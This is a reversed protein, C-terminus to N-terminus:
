AFIKLFSGIHFSTDNGETYWASDPDETGGTVEKPQMIPWNHVVEHALLDNLYDEKDIVTSDHYELLFSWLAASGGYSPSTSRRVFIRYSPGLDDFFASMQSYLQEVLTAIKTANFIAPEGFWYMGFNSAPTTHNRLPGVALFTNSIDNVTGRKLVPSGEGWTWVASIGPPADDLNWAFTIDYIQDADLPMPVFSMPSGILGGQDTRLDYRPGPPTAPTITRPIATFNVQVTGHVDRSVFWKQLNIEEYDKRYLSLAGDQDAAKLSCAGSYNNAPVNGIMLPLAVLADDSGLSMSQLNLSISLAIADGSTGNFLPKVTVDISLPPSPPLVTVSTLFSAQAYSLLRKIM